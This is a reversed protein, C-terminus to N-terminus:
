QAQIYVTSCNNVEIYDAGSLQNNVKLCVNYNGGTSYAHSPAALSSTSGDGFNWQYAFTGSNNTIFSANLGNPCYAFAASPTALVYVTTTSQATCGNAAATVTYPTTTVPSAFPSSGQTTNLGAAPSWSLNVNNNEVGTVAANLQVKGGQKITYSTPYAVVSLSNVVVNVNASTSCGTAANTLTVMYDTSTTPSAMPSAIGSNSLGASPTWNFTGSGTTNLVVSSGSCIAYVSQPISLSPNPNVTVTVEDSIYSNGCPTQVSYVTTVQPSAVPNSVTFNNLGNTPSWAYSAAAGAQLIVESGECITQDPGADISLVTVTATAVSACSNPTRGTVTYITTTNPNVTISKTIAGTSWSYITASGNATLTVNSGLCTTRSTVSLSPAAPQVKVTITFPTGNDVQSGHKYGPTVIYVATQISTTTNVLTQSITGNTSSSASGGTINPANPASWSYITPNPVITTLTPYSANVPTVSFASGSCITLQPINPIRPVPRVTVKVTFSAGTCQLGGTTKRPTVVYTAIQNTSTYNYLRQSIATGTGASGGTISGSYTPQSWSYSYGAPFSIDTLAGSAIEKLKASSPISLPTPDIVDVIVQAILKQRPNNCFLKSRYLSFTSKQNVTYYIPWYDSGLPINQLKNGNITMVYTVFMDNFLNGNYLFRYSELKVNTGKCVTTSISHGNAKLDYTHYDNCYPQAFINSVGIQLVFLLLLIQKYFKKM